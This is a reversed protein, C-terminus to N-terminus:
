RLKTGPGIPASWHAPTMLAADSPRASAEHTWGHGLRRGALEDWALRVYLPRDGGAWPRPDWTRKIPALEDPDEVPQVARSGARELGQPRRLGRPRGRLRATLGLRPHRRRRHSTRFVVAESVVATTSRSSGHVPPPACPSAASSGVAWLERCKAYSMEIPADM